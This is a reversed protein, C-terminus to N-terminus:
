FLDLDLGAGREIRGEFVSGSGVSVASSHESASDSSGEAAGDIGLHLDCVGSERGSGTARSESREGPQDAGM